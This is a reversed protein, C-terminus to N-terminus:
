WFHVGWIWKSSWSLGFWDGNCVVEAEYHRLFFGLGESEDVLKDMVGKLVMQKEEGILSFGVRFFLVNWLGVGLGVWLFAGQVMLIFFFFLELGNFFLEFAFQDFSVLSVRCCCTLVVLSAVAVFWFALFVVTHTELHAVCAWWIALANATLIMYHCLLM